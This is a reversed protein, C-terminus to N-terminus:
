FICHLLYSFVVLLLSMGESVVTDNDDGLTRRTFKVLDSAEYVEDGLTTLICCLPILVLEPFDCGLM